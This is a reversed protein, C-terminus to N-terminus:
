GVLVTNPMKNLRGATSPFHSDALLWLYMKHLIQVLMEGSMGAKRSLQVVRVSM